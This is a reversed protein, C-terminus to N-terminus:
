KKIEYFDLRLNNNQSNPTALIIGEKTIIPTKTNFNGPFFIESLVTFDNDIVIISWSGDARQAVKGEEKPTVEHWSIRYYLNRYKDFMIDTYLATKNQATIIASLNNVNNEPIPIFDNIYKSKANVKKIFNGSSDYIYLNHDIPFSFIKEKKNNITRSVQKEAVDGYYIGKRYTDPYKTMRLIQTTDYLNFTFDIYDDFKMMLSPEERTKASFNIKGKELVIPYHFSPWADFFVSKVQSIKNINYNNLVKGSSDILKIISHCFKNGTKLYFIFISDFNHHYFFRIYEHPPIEIQKFLTGDDLSYYNIQKKETDIFALFEKDNDIIYQSKRLYFREGSNNSLSITRKLKIEINNVKSNCSIFLLFFVLLYNFQTKITTM